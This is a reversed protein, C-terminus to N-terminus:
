EKQVLADFLRKVQLDGFGYIAERKHFERFIIGFEKTNLEKMIQQLTETPRGPSHKSPLRQAHAEVVKPIFPFSSALRSATKRLETLNEQQYFKWLDGFLEPNKIEMKENFKESLEETSLSGFGYELTTNPLVLYWTLGVRNQLLLHIVFWMNVQCFLDEEFWLYVHSHEPVTLLTRFESAVSTQYFAESEGYSKNLYSARLAFFHDLTDASVPGDVLCERAVIKKGSLSYPFKEALADGNLIHLKEQNM